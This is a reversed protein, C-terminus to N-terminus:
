DEQKKRTQPDLMITEKLKEVAVKTDAATEGLLGAIQQVLKMQEVALKDAMNAAAVKMKHVEQRYLIEKTVNKMACIILGNKRDRTFIRELYVNEEELYLQDQAFNKDFALMNVMEYDDMITSVPQGIITKKRKIDFLDMAAKNMQIVELDDNVTVLLGPMASVIKNAYQEEKERMYPICMSIEAKNQFIAIAKDRCTNYGCAGCNLEDEKAMKGMKQMIEKIQEETPMAENIGGRMFQRSLDLDCAINYDPADELAVTKELASNRIALTGELRNKQKKRRFSPGGICGGHCASLEVYYHEMNGRAIEELVSKCNEIGDVGIYDYKRNKEMSDLFGSSLVSMRSLYHSDDEEEAFIVPESEIWQELEEFSIVYDISNSPENLEAWTAICPSICVVVADPDQSKIYKAHANYYSLVPMVYKMLQPYKKEILQVISPCRSSIAFDVEGEGLIKEYEKKVLYAGEACERADSFGLQKLVSRMEAFNRVPYQAIYASNVSAIVKKGAKMVEKIRPIVNNEEKANQPCVITCNECLICADVMIQAQHNKIKIAKVPCYRVCKYCNKCNVPKFRIPM